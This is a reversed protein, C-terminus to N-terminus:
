IQAMLHRFEYLGGTFMNLEENSKNLIPLSSKGGGFEGGSGGSNIPAV